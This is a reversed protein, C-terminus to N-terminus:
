SIVDVGEDEEQEPGDNGRLRRRVAEETASSTAPTAPAARAPGTTQPNIQTSGRVRSAIRITARLWSKGALAIEQEPQPGFWADSFSVLVGFFNPM